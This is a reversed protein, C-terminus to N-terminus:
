VKGEQTCDDLKKAVKFVEGLLTSWNERNRKKRIGERVQTGWLMKRNQPEQQYKEKQSSLPQVNM